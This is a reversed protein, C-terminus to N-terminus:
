KGKMMLLNCTNSENQGTPCVGNTYINSMAFFSNRYVLENHCFHFTITFEIIKKKKLITYLVLSNLKVFDVPSCQVLLM